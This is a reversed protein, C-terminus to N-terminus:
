FQSEVTCQTYKKAACKQLQIAVRYETIQIYWGLHSDKSLIKNIVGQDATGEDASLISARRHGEGDGHLQHCVHTERSPATAVPRGQPLLRGIPPANPFQRKTSGYDCFPARGGKAGTVLHLGRM